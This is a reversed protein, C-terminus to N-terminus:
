TRRTDAHANSVESLPNPPPRPVGIDRQGILERTPELPVVKEQGLPIGLDVEGGELQGRAALVLRNIAQEHLRQDRGLLNRRM